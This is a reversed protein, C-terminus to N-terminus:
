KDKELIDIIALFDVSNERVPRYANVADDYYYINYSYISEKNEKFYYKKGNYEIMDVKVKEEKHEVCPNPAEVDKKIDSTFLQRNNPSCVRCHPEANLLCEIAVEELPQVFSAIIERDLLMREYFDIDITKKYVENSKELNEDDLFAVALYIYPQVNKENAQLLIHSNNRVARAIVQAIRAYNWYPEMIHVIRVNKLDLGEAGSSSILLLQIIEGHANDPSSYMDIIRQRVDFPVNGTITAFRLRQASGGQKNKLKVDEPKSDKDIITSYIGGWQTEKGALGNGILKVLIYRPISEDIGNDTLEVNGSSSVHAHGVIHGDQEIDISKGNRIFKINSLPKKEYEGTKVNDSEDNPADNPATNHATNLANNPVNDDEDNTEIISDNIPSENDTRADNSEVLSVKNKSVKNAHNDRMDDRVDSTDVLSNTSVDVDDRVDDRADDHADTIVDASDNPMEEEYTLEPASEDRYEEYGNEILFRAFTGLGAVGVFQSYIIQLQGKHKNINDLIARFKPSELQERPIQRPDKTATTSYFNSIMRTKVHYSSSMGSKPKMMNPINHNPRSFASENQEAEYATRYAAFQTNTMKVREIILPYEEPFEAKVADQEVGLAKGFTSSRKAVSILGFLRNQFKVRNKLLGRSDTFLRTFGIYDEPLTTRSGSIMNMAPVLEYPSSNVPTGTFFFINNNKANLTMDYFALGNKSGNTISRFLNHAEDILVVTNDLSNPFESMVNGLRAEIDIIDQSITAKNLQSIMNSANMSVFSFHADIWADLDAESLLALHYSETQGRLLVYKKIAKRLNNHLSKSLLFIVKKGNTKNEIFDMAIATIVMSKGTGTEHYILLGKTRIDINNVFFRVINQYYKLFSFKNDWSAKKLHEFLRLPFNTNNRNLVISM